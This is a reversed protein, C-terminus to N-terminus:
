TQVLDVQCVYDRSEGRPNRRGCIACYRYLGPKGSCDDCVFRGRAMAVKRGCKVCYHYQRLGRPIPAWRNM